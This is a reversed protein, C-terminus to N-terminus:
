PRIGFRHKVKFTSMSPWACHLLLELLFLKLEPLDDVLVHLKYLLAPCRLERHLLSQTSSQSARLGSVARPSGYLMVGVM